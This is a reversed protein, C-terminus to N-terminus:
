LPCFTLILVILIDFLRFKRTNKLVLKTLLFRGKKLFVQYDEKKKLSFRTIKRKKKLSFRAVRVSVGWTILGMAVYM